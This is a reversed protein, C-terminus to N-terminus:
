SIKKIILSWIGTGLLGQWLSKTLLAWGFIKINLIGWGEMAKNRTIKDLKVLHYKHKTEYRVWIYRAIDYNIHKIISARICYLHAWYVALQQLVSQVLIVRGGLTLCRHTWGSIKKHLRDM